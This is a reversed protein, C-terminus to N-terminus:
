LSGPKVSGLLLRFESVVEGYLPDITEGYLAVVDPRFQFSQPILDEYDCGVTYGVSVHDVIIAVEQNFRSVTNFLKEYLHQDFYIAQDELERILANGSDLSKRAWKLYYGAETQNLDPDHDLVPCDGVLKETPIKWDCIAKYVSKIADARQGDIRTAAINQEHAYISLQSKLTDTKESLESKYTELDKSLRQEVMKKALYYVVGSAVLAPTVVTNIFGWLINM